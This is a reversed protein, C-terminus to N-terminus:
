GGRLAKVVTEAEEPVFGEVIVVVGADVASRFAKEGNATAKFAVVAVLYEGGKYKPSYSYLTSASPSSPDSSPAAASAGAKQLTARCSADDNCAGAVLADKLAAAGEPNGSGMAYVWVGHDSAAGGVGSKPKGFDYVTVAAKGLSGGDYGPATADFKFSPVEGPSTKSEVNKVGWGAAALRATAEKENMTALGKPAAPAAPAAPQAASSSARVPSASKKPAASATASASAAADAVKPGCGLLLLMPLIAPLLSTRM